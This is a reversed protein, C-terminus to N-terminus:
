GFPDTGVLQDVCVLAIACSNVAVLGLRGNFQALHKGIGFHRQRYVFNLLKNGSALLALNAREAPEVRCVTRTLFTVRGCGM